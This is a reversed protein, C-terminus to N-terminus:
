FYLFWNQVIQGLLVLGGLLLNFLIGVGFLLRILKRRRLFAASPSAKPAQERGDASIGREDSFHGEPLRADIPRDGDAAIWRGPFRQRMIERADELQREDVYVSQGYFSIGYTNRLWCGYSHYEQTCSAIGADSLVNQIMALFTGDYELTLLRPLGTHAPEPEPPQPAPLEELPGGCDSCVTFGPRYECRCKPCWPM